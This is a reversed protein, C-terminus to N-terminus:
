DQANETMKMIQDFRSNSFSIENARMLVIGEELAELM